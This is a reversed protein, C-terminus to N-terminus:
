QRVVFKITIMKGKWTLVCPYLGTPLYQEFLVSQTVGAEVAGDFIRAIHQGNLTYIDLKADTSEGLTFEFIAPGTAPNPYVKFANTLNNEAPNVPPTIVVLTDAKLGNSNVVVAL